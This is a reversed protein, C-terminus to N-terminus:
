ALDKASLARKRGDFFTSEDFIVDRTAIVRGTHPIWVRYINTSEYGVLYGIDARPDLKRLKNNKLKYDATAAYAVCGDAKLHAIQPKTPGTVHDRTNVYDQLRQLPTEWNHKAKPTRNHLYVAAKIVESWLTHPLSAQLWMCRAVAIIIGGTREATGNLDQTNSPSPEITIGVAHAWNRVETPECTIFMIRKFGKFDNELETWDIYIKYYPKTARLDPPRRSIQRSVKARACYPCEKTSPGRSTLKAGRCHLELHLLAEPGAHGM